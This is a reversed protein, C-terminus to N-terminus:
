FAIMLTNAIIPLSLAYVAGLLIEFDDGDGGEVVRYIAESLGNVDDPEIKAWRRWGNQM